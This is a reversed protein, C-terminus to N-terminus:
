LLGTMAAAGFGALILASARDLWLMAGPTVTRRASAVATCLLLWWLASGIFVGAVLTFAGGTAALGLAGFAAVFSLITAPNALTLGVATVYAGVWGGGGAERARRPAGAARWAAIGLWILFGGGALRLPTQWALLFRALVSTGSAALAGYLADGTAIGAGIAMGAAWGHSLTRNITLLGMPGVPAAVSLGLLFGALLVSLM